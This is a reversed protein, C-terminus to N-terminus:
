RWSWAVPDWTTQAKRQLVPNLFARAAAAVAELTGWPLHHERALAAYPTAWVSPPEPLETPIEHSARFGFTQQLAQDVRTRELTRVQALLALDPLDKVRGNVGARPLTYAHLKEAVHTEVPYVRFQPPPIGVFGLRDVAEMIEPAGLMPEGVGVDVGFPNGYPENGLLCKAVFRQGGYVAGDGDIEPRKRNREIEFHMFDGFDLRGAGQLRELMDEAAGMWRLDVDKTTRARDLRFELVLGGKLTVTDGLVYFVRALFREFVLLQRARALVAGSGAPGRLRGELAM